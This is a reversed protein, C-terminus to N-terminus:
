SIAIYLCINLLGQSECANKCQINNKYGDIYKMAM